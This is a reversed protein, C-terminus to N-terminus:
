SEKRNQLITSKRKLEPKSRTKATTSVFTSEATEKKPTFVSSTYNSTKTNENKVLSLRRIAGLRKRKQAAPDAVIRRESSDLKGQNDLRLPRQRQLPHCLRRQGQRNKGTEQRRQNEEKRSSSRKRLTSAISAALLGDLDLGTTEDKAGERPSAIQASTSPVASSSIKITSFAATWCRRLGLGTLSPCADSM